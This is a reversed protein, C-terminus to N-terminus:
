TRLGTGTLAAHDKAQQVTEFLTDSMDVFLPLGIRKLEDYYHLARGADRDLRAAVLVQKFIAATPALQALRAQDYLAHVKATDGTENYLSM